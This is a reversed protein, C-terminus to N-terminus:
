TSAIGQEQNSGLEALEIDFLINGSWLDWKNKLSFLSYLIYTDLIIAM